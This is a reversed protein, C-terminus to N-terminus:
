VRHTMAAHAECIEKAEHQFRLGVALQVTDARNKSLAWAEWTPPKNGSPEACEDLDGRFDEGAIRCVSYQNCETIAYRGDVDRWILAM